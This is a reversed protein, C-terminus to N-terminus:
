FPGDGTDAAAEPFPLLSYNVVTRGDPLTVYKVYFDVSTSKLKQLIDSVPVVEDGLSLVQRAQGILIKFGAEFRNDCVTRDALKWDCRVYPKDSEKVPPVFAETLLRATHKGEALKPISVGKSYFDYFNTSM